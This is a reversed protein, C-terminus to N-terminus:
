LMSYRYTTKIYPLRFEKDDSCDFTYDCILYKGRMRGAYSKNKEKYDEIQKERPIAFRYTDERYDVHRYQITESSQHKTATNIEKIVMINDIFDASFLQNDFVKTYMVNDNVVFRVKSLLEESYNLATYGQNHLFFKNEKISVLKDSFQLAFNPMYTYFSTFVGLNENFVINKNNIKFQVENYKVDYLSLNNKREEKSISYLYSQVNKAKSLELFNQSLQCIVNKDYDYWYLAQNTEIISKDNVVSDGNHEVLYDYRVLIGGTGLTLAGPNNDTILSRENVAAIGVASDQFYYLKNKFERLNTIPGYKIDVDLYNAFKFKTWSDILENNIKQESCTIRNQILLDDESYLGDAVFNAVNVQASYASNYQYLPEEQSYTNGFVTPENQILNQALGNGEVTRHYCEDRRLALNVSSELPIYSAICIRLEREEKVNNSYQIASTTLHDLVGLYTDGGYCMVKDQSVHNYAGCSIYVSNTRTAYSNGGYGVIQQKVNLITSTYYRYRAKELSVPIITANAYLQESDVRVICNVGHNAYQRYGGVSLNIYKKNGILQIYQKSISLDMPAAPLIQGIIADTIQHGQVTTSPSEMATNNYYKFLAAFGQHNNGKGEGVFIRYDGDADTLRGLEYSEEYADGITSNDEEWLQYIKDQINWFSNGDRDVSYSSDVWYLQYLKSNEIYPLFLDKSFCIEPSILEFYNKLYHQSDNDWDDEHLYKTHLYNGQTTIWMQPRTDIDKGVHYHEKEWDDFNIVKNLVCQTLVTSDNETRDCRVIEYAVVDSPLNNVTFEVGLAYSVLESINDYFESRIGNHFPFAVGTSYDSSPMRIDGIWHVPSPIMKRNYFVIGFRYIEDRRYGTFDACIEASAYNPIVNSYRTNYAVTGDEYYTKINGTAKHSNLYLDRAPSGQRASVDESSQTLETFLFRYSVNPGSGGHILQGNHYGYTYTQGDSTFLELNSPNICDHDEAVTIVEGNETITGDANLRGIISHAVINHNLRIGGNADCRYARADYEIDWDDEQINAAFLRNDMTELTKAKFTHPILDNVEDSSLVALGSNGTDQWTISTGDIALEDVITVEPIQNNQSYHLRYIRIYGFQQQTEFETKLICGLGTNEGIRQGKVKMSESKNFSETLPIKHSLPSLSTEGSHKNFLKYAYQVEGAPLSGTCFGDFKFPSLTSDPIIDFATNGYYQSADYDEQLNVVKILGNGDTFYINSVYQSEYNAVISLEETVDFKATLIHRQQLNNEEKFGTVIYISNNSYSQSLRNLTILVACDEVTQTEKNYWKTTTTGLISESEKINLKYQKNKEIGQLVGTTGDDNTVIRVNEAYKYQNKSIYNVDADLNMGGNFTNIQANIEM